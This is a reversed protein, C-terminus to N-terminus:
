YGSSLNTHIETIQKTIQQLFSIYDSMAPMLVESIEYSAKTVMEM